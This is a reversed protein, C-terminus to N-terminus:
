DLDASVSAGPPYLFYNADPDPTYFRITWRKYPEGVSFWECNQCDTEKPRLEGDVYVLFAWTDGQEVLGPPIKYETEQDPALNGFDVTTHESDPAPSTGVIRINVPDPMENRFRLMVRDTSETDSTNITIPEAVAISDDVSKDGTSRKDIVGTLEGSSTTSTTTGVPETDDFLKDIAKQTATAREPSQGPGSEIACGFLVSSFVILVPISVLIRM